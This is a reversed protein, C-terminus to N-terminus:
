RNVTNQSIKNFIEQFKRNFYKIKSLNKEAAYEDIIIAIINLRKGLSLKEYYKLNDNLLKLMLETQKIMNDTNKKLLIYDKNKLNNEIQVMQNDIQGLLASLDFVKNSKEDVNIANEDKIQEDNVSLLKVQSKDPPVYEANLIIRIDSLNIRINSVIKLSDDFNNKTLKYEIGKIYRDINELKQYINKKKKILPFSLSEKFVSTITSLKKNEILANNSDHKLIFDEVKCNQIELLKLLDNLDYIKSQEDFKDESFGYVFM